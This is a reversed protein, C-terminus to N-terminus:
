QSGGRGSAVRLHHVNSRARASNSERSTGGETARHRAEEPNCPATGDETARHSRKREGRQPEQIGGRRPNLFYFVRDWQGKERDQEARQVMGKTELRYIIRQVGQRTMGVEAAIEAQTARCMGWRPSYLKAMAMLVVHEGGRLGQARAWKVAAASM